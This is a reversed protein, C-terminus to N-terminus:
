PDGWLDLRPHHYGGSVIKGPLREEPGILNERRLKGTDVSSLAFTMLSPIVVSQM